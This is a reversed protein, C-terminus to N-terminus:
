MERTTEVEEATADSFRSKRKRKGPGVDNAAGKLFRRFPEPIDSLARTAEVRRQSTPPGTRSPGPSAAAEEQHPDRIKHSYEIITKFLHDRSRDIEMPPPFSRRKAEPESSGQRGAGNRGSERNQSRQQEGGEPYVPQSKAALVQKRRVEEHYFETLADRKPYPRRYPPADEPNYEHQAQGHPMEERPDYRPDGGPTLIVTRQPVEVYEEEYETRYDPDMYERRRTDGDRYDERWPEEEMRDYMPRDRNGM